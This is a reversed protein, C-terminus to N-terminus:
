GEDQEEDDYVPPESGDIPGPEDGAIVRQKRALAVEKGTEWKEVARAAAELSIAPDYTEDSGCYHVRLHQALDEVGDFVGCSKHPFTRPCRLPVADGTAAMVRARLARTKPDYSHRTADVFEMAQRVTMEVPVTDTMQM